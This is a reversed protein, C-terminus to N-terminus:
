ELAWRSLKLCQSYEIERLAANDIFSEGFEGRTNRPAGEPIYDTHFAINQLNHTFVELAGVGASRGLLEHRFFYFILM